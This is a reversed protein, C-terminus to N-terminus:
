RSDAENRPRIARLEAEIRRRENFGDIAIQGKAGIGNNLQRNAGNQREKRRKKDAFVELMTGVNKPNYNRREGPDFNGLYQKITARWVDADEPKVDAEIMGAKGPTLPVEPFAAMWEGVPDFDNM